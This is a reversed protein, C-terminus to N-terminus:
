ERLDVGEKGSIIKENDTVAWCAKCSAAEPGATLIILIAIM